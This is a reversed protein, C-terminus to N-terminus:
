KARAQLWETLAALVSPAVTRAEAYVSASAAGKNPKLLHDLEPLLRLTYDAHQARHLAENLYQADKVSVEIDKEGQLILVPAKISGAVQLPDNIFLPIVFEPQELLRLLVADYPNKSDLGAKLGESSGSALTRVIHDLKALQAAIETGSRGAAKMQFQLRERILKNLTRGPAAALIVGALKEDHSAIISAAFGGESHGLLFVKAPEIEARKRLYALAARADDVLLDFTTKSPCGDTGTCRNDYRLVAWGQGAFHEALERQLAQQAAVLKAEAQSAGGVLMLAPARKDAELKPLLLTGALTVGAGTLKVEESRFPQGAKSAPQAAVSAACCILGALLLACQQHWNKSQSLHETM